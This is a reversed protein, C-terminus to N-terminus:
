GILTVAGEVLGGGLVRDLEAIGIPVRKENGGTVSSLPMPGFNGSSFSKLSKPSQREESFSNWAGCDPCKGLWKPSSYGCSQCQFVTKSKSM